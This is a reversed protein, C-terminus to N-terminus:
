VSGAGTAGMLEKDVEQAVEVVSEMDAVLEAALEATCLAVEVVPAVAVKRATLGIHKTNERAQLVELSTNSAISQGQPRSAVVGQRRRAM